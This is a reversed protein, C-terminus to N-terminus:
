KKWCVVGSATMNGNKDYRCGVYSKYGRKEMTRFEYWISFKIWLDVVWSLPPLRLFIELPSHNCGM